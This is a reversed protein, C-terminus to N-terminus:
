ISIPKWLEIVSLSMLLNAIFDAIFIGSCSVFTAVSGQQGDNYQTFTAVVIGQSIYSNLFNGYELVLCLM